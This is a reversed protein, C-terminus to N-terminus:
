QSQLSCALRIYVGIMLLDNKLFTFKHAENTELNIFFYRSYFKQEVKDNRANVLEPRPRLRSLIQFTCIGLCMEMLFKVLVQFLMDLKVCAREVRFFEVLQPLMRVLPSRYVTLRTKAGSVRVSSSAKTLVRGTKCGRRDIYLM